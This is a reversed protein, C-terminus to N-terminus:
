LAGGYLFSSGTLLHNFVPTVWSLCDSHFPWLLLPALEASNAIFLVHAKADALRTEVELRMM